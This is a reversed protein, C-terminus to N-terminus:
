DADDRERQQMNLRFQVDYVQWSAASFQKALKRIINIYEMMPVM